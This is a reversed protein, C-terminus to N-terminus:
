YLFKKINIVYEIAIKLVKIGNDNLVIKGDKYLELEPIYMTATTSSITPRKRYLGKPDFSTINNWKQQIKKKSLVIDLVSSTPENIKKQQSNELNKGTKTEAIAYYMLHSGGYSGIYQNNELYDGNKDNYM